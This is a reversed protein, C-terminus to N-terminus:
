RSGALFHAKARAGSLAKAYLAVEDITGQFTSYTLGGAPAGVVFSGHHTISFVCQNTPTAVAEGNLYLSCTQIAADYVAVVHTYVGLPLVQAPLPNAGEQVGDLYREFQIGDRGHITMSYGQRPTLQEAALVRRYEDDLASPKLWAELTFSAHAAFDFAPDSIVVSGVDFRAATDSDGFIAGPVGLTVGDHYTGVAGKPVQNSATTAGPAEGLRFYGIPEDKLVEASYAFAAAESSAEAAGDGFSADDARLDNGKLTDFDVALACAAGAFGVALM